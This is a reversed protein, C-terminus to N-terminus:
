LLGSVGVMRTFFLTEVEEIPLSSASIDPIMQLINADGWIVKSAYKLDYNFISPRLSSLEGTTKQSIDIGGFLVNGALEARLQERENREIVRDLVLLLDYDNYPRVAGTKDVYWSGEDRGYGGYLVVARLGDSLSRVRDVILRLHRELVQENDRISDMYRGSVCCTMTFACGRASRVGLCRADWDSKLEDRARLACRVDQFVDRLILLYIALMLGAFVMVRIHMSARCDWPSAAFVLASVSILCPLAFFHCFGHDTMPRIYIEYVVISVLVQVMLVAM